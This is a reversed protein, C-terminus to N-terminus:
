HAAVPGGPGEPKQMLLVLPSLLVFLAGLLQFIHVFTVMTAQRHLEFALAAQARSLATVHDAGASMFGQTMADLRSQTTVDYASM